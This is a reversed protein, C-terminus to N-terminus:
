TMSEAQRVGEDVNARLAELQSILEDLESVPVRSVAALNLMAQGAGRARNGQTGKVWGHYNAVIAVRGAPITAKATSENRLLVAQEFARKVVSETNEVVEAAFAINTM